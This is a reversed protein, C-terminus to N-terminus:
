KYEIKVKNQVIKSMETEKDSCFAKVKHFSM